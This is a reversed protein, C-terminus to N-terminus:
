KQDWSRELERYKKLVDIEAAKRKNDLKLQEIESLEETGKGYSYQKGVNQDFRHTENNKYWRWWTNVQTRNRINLEDMIERTSFGEAKMKVCKWKVESSYAIRQM